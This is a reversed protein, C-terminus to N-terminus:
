GMMRDEIAHDLEYQVDSQKVFNENSEDNGGMHDGLGVDIDKDDINMSVKM